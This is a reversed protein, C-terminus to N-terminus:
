PWLYLVQQFSVQTGHAIPCLRVTVESRFVALEDPRTLRVCRGEAGMGNPPEVGFRRAYEQWVKVAGDNTQYVEAQSVYGEHVSFWHTRGAEAGTASLYTKLTRDLSIDAAMGYGVLSVGLGVLIMSVVAILKNM